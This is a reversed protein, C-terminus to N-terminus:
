KEKLLFEFVYQVSENPLEEMSIHGADPITVLTSGRIAKNFQHASELKILKDEEGWLILTPTHIFSLSDIPPKQLQQFRLWTAHRNGQRLMLKYYRDILKPTILNPNAYVQKMNLSFMWRPTIHEITFAAHKSRLLKFIFPAHNNQQDGAATIFGAADILILNAIRDPHHLAAQWAVQGGMSNGVISFTYVDLSDALEFVLREFNNITYNESHSPGTLGHSPLDLSVTTFKTSLTDEWAQWTHLSALSGHILFLHPGNGRIRVHVKADHLQVYRSEPTFYQKELEEVPIDKRNGLIFLGILIAASIAIGKLLKSFM